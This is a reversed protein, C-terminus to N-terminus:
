LAFRDIKLMPQWNKSFKTASLTLPLVTEKQQSWLLVDVTQWGVDFAVPSGDISKLLLVSLTQWVVDFAVHRRNQM